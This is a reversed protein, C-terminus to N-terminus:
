SIWQHRYIPSNVYMRDSCGFVKLWRSM